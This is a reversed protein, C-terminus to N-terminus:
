KLVFVHLILQVAIILITVVLTKRLDHTLYLYNQTTISETSPGSNAAIKTNRNASSGSFSYTASATQLTQTRRTDSLMKEKRTKKKSPM